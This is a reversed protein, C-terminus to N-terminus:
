NTFSNKWKLLSCSCWYKITVLSSLFLGVRQALNCLEKELRLCKLDASNASHQSEKTESKAAVSSCLVRHEPDETQGNTLLHLKADSSNYPVTISRESPTSRPSSEVSFGEFSVDTESACTGPAPERFGNAIDDVSMSLGEGLSHVSTLSPSRDECNVDEGISDEQINNSRDYKFSEVAEPSSYESPDENEFVVDNNRSLQKIEPVFCNEEKPAVSGSENRTRKRQPVDGTQFSFPIEELTAERNSSQRYKHRTEKEQDFLELKM